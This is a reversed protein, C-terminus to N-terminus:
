NGMAIRWANQADQAGMGEAQIAEAVVEVSFTYDSSPAAGPNGVTVPATTTTEGAAVAGNYYYFGSSETWGSNETVTCNPKTGYVNGSADMWNVVVAARIYADVNSTNKVTCDSNVECSVYAPVFRNTVPETKTSLYALTGGVSVTLLLVIALILAFTKNRKM